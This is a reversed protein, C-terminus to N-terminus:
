GTTPDNAQARSLFGAAEEAQPRLEGLPHTRSAEAGRCLWASRNRKIGIIGPSGPPGAFGENSTIKLCGRLTLLLM